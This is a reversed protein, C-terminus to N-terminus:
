KKLEDRLSAGEALKMWNAALRLWSERDPQKIAREAVCRCEEAEVRYRDAQEESRMM